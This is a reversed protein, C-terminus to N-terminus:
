SITCISNEGTPRLSYKGFIRQRKKRGENDKPLIAVTRNRGVSVLIFYYGHHSLALVECTEELSIITNRRGDVSVLDKLKSSPCCFFDDIMFIEKSLSNKKDSRTELSPLFCLAVPPARTHQSVYLSSPSAFSVRICELMRM